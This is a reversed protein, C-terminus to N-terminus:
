SRATDEAGTEMVPKRLSASRGRFTAIIEGADNTIAIDYVGQRGTKATERATATLRDGERAPALYEISCGAAVTAENRSNCAYAFATDALSFLMGGHCTAHGNLMEATVTMTLVAYGPGVDEISIGLHQAANDRAYLVDAVQRALAVPDSAPSSRSIDNM